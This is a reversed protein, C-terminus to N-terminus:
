RGLLHDFLKKASEGSWQRAGLVKGSIKGDSGILYSTPLATVEYLRRVRGAPDHLVKFTIGHKKCFAGVKGIKGRDGAVAIIAIDSGKVQQWLAELDPMEERCPDCWTAWFHLLVVKGRYAELHTAGGEVGELTFPPAAVRVKPRIIGMEV